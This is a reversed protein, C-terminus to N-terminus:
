KLYDPVDAGSLAAAIAEERAFYFAKVQDVVEPDVGRWVWSAKRGPTKSPQLALKSIEIKGVSDKLDSALFTQNIVVNPIEIGDKAALAEPSPFHTITATAENRFEGEKFPNPANDRFDTVEIMLVYSSVFNEPKLFTRNGGAIGGTEFSKGFPNESM